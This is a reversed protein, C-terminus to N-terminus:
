THQLPLNLLSMASYITISYVSCIANILHLTQDPLCLSLGCKEHWQGRKDRGSGRGRHMEEDAPITGSVAWGRARLM